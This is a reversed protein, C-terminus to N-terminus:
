HSARPKLPQLTQADLKRPVPNQAIKIQPYFWVGVQMTGLGIDMLRLYPESKYFKGRLSNRNLRLRDKHGKRM